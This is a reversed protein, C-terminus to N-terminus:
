LGNGHRLHLIIDQSGLVIEGDGPIIVAIETTSKAPLNYHRHDSNPDVHLAMTHQQNPGMARMHWYAHQFLAISPHSHYLMDQLEGLNAFDLNHNWPHNAHYHTAADKNYLYLQAYVPPGDAMPLLSGIKHSLEGHLRFSYPGCGNNVSEDLEHGVSTLALASNYIRIHKLFTTGIPDPCTLLQHLENPVPALPFLSRTGKLCCMGFLPHCNTSSTLCEAMFHLAHCSPCPINLLSLDDMVWAPGFPQHGVPLAPLPPPPPDMQPCPPPEPPPQPLLGPQPQPPIWPKFIM